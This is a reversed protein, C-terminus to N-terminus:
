ELTYVNEQVSRRMRIEYVIHPPEESFCSSILAHGRGRRRLFVVLLLVVVVSAVCVCLSLVPVHITVTDSRPTTSNRRLLDLQSWLVVKWDATSTGTTTGTSTGTSTGTTTGITTESPQQTNTHTHTHIHTTSSISTSQPLSPARIVRLNMVVKKDNFFGDINVRCCYPGGDTWRVDVINLDMQGDLVDGRLQYREDTKSVLGSLDTQILVNTCWFTGCGRGWCVRSLGFRQVSYQCSLSAVGGEMVKFSAGGVSLFLLVIFTQCSRLSVAAM